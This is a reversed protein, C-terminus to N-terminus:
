LRSDIGSPSAIKVWRDIRRNLGSGIGNASMSSM